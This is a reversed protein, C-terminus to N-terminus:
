TGGPGKMDRETGERGLPVEKDLAFSLYREASRHLAAKGDAPV